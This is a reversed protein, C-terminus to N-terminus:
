FGDCRNEEMDGSENTQIEERYNKELEERTWINDIPSNGITKYCCMRYEVM